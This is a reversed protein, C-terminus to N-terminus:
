TYSNYFPLLALLKDLENEINAIERFLGHMGNVELKKIINARHVNVTNPSINLEKAVEETRDCKFLLRLVKIEQKTLHSFRELLFTRSNSQALRKQSEKVASLISEYLDQTNYPRSFYRFAGLRYAESVTEIDDCDSVFIVPLFIQRTNINKLFDRGSMMPMLMRSVVCGPESYGALNLFPTPDSYTALECNSGQLLNQYESIHDSNNDIIYITGPM